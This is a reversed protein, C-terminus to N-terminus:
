MDIDLSRNFRSPIDALIIGEVLQSKTKKDNSSIPAFKPSQILSYLQNNLNSILKEVQDSVGPSAAAPGDSSYSVSLFISRFAVLFILLWILFRSIKKFNDWTLYQHIFLPLSPVLKNEMENLHTTKPIEFRVHGSEGTGGRSHEITEIALETDGENLVPTTPITIHSSKSSNVFLKPLETPYYNNNTVRRQPIQSFESHTIISKPKILSASNTNTRSM